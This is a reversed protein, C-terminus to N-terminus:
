KKKAIETDEIEERNFGVVIFMLDFFRLIAELVIILLLYYGVQGIFSPIQSFHTIIKEIYNTQVFSSPNLVVIALLTMPLLKAVEQALEEKYYSTIRVASIISASIIFIVPINQNQIFIILFFTLASFAVFVLIPLIIIYEIFYLIGAILRSTFPYELKNYKKLGLEILNKRSIAKYGKWVAVSYIVILLVLVFFNIFRGVSDPFFSIFENYNQIIMSSSNIVEAM